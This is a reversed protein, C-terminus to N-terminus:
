FESEDFAEESDFDEEVPVADLPKSVRLPTKTVKLCSDEISQDLFSRKNTKLYKRLSTSSIVINKMWGSDAENDAAYDILRDIIPMVPHAPSVYEMGDAGFAFVPYVETENEVAGYTYSKGNFDQLVVTRGTEQVYAKLAANNVRSFASYWLNFNLRQPMTLQTNPNYAAIPCTANSLLPCYFCHNGAIADITNGAEFDAHTKLQRSRASSIAAMLEPIMDRTYKAERVVNRYRVFILRFTVEQVWAFHMFVFLAYTKGQLKESPDFPHPHTKLDDIRMAGQDPFSYLADLTGVV